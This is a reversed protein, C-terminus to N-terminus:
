HKNFHNLTMRNLEELNDHEASFRLM